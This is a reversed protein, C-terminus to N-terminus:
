PREGVQLPQTVPFFGGIADLYTASRGFLGGVIPREGHRGDAAIRLPFQADNGYWPSPGESMIFGLLHVVHGWEYAGEIRVLFLGPAILFEDLKGGGGGHKVGVLDRGFRDEWVFQVADIVKGHWV